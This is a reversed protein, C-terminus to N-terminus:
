QKKGKLAKIYCAEVPVIFDDGNLLTIFYVNDSREVDKLRTNYFGEGDLYPAPTCSIIYKAGDDAAKSKEAAKAEVNYGSAMLALAICLIMKKM